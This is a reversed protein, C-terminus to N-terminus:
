EDRVPDRVLDRLLRPRLQATGVSLTRLRQRVRQDGGRLGVTVAVPIVGRDHHQQTPEGALYRDRPPSRGTTTIGAGPTNAHREGGGPPGHAYTIEETVPARSRPRRLCDPHRDHRHVATAAETDRRAAATSCAHPPGAPRTSPRTRHERELPECTKRSTVMATLLATAPWLVLGATLMALASFGAHDAALLLTTTHLAGATASLDAHRATRRLVHQVIRRVTTCCVVLVPGGLLAVTLAAWWMAPQTLLLGVSSGLVILLMTFLGVTTIRLEGPLAQRPADLLHFAGLLLGALTGLTTTWPSPTPTTWALEAAITAGTVAGAWLTALSPRVGRRGANPTDVATPPSPRHPTLTPAAAQAVAAHLHSLRELTQTATPRRAPDKDLLELVLHELERPVDRRLTSLAAPVEHLHQHLVNWGSGDFPRTGTILEHILCGLSYMDSPAALDTDGRAQEPSMYAPTGIAAGTVTLTHRTLTDSLQAIGFDCLMAAGRHDILVNSPKIDRHVVGAQHAAHLAQGIQAAWILADAIPLPGTILSNLPQGDVLDMALYLVRRGDLDATGHDHVAVVHRHSLRAAVGAERRFAAERVPDGDLTIIKLAVHQGAQLDEARWVAGMGGSGIAQALRYRGAVTTGRM